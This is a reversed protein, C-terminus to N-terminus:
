RSTTKPKFCGWYRNLNLFHMSPAGNPRKEIETKTFKEHQGDLWTISQTAPDFSYRGKANPAEYTGNAKLNFKIVAVGPTTTTTTQSLKGTITNVSSHTMTQIPTATQCVWAGTYEAPVGKKEQNATQAVPRRATRTKQPTVATPLLLLIGTALLAYPLRRM